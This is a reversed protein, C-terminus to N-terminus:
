NVRIFGTKFNTIMFNYKAAMKNSLDVIATVSTGASSSSGNEVTIDGLRVKAFPSSAATTISANALNEFYISAIKYAILKNLFEPKVQRPTLYYNVKLIESSELPTVKIYFENIDLDFIEVDVKETYPYIPTAQKFATIDLISMAGGFNADFYWAKPLEYYRDDQLKYVQVGFKFQCIDMKIALKAQDFLFEVDASPLATASIKCEIRILDIIKQISSQVPILASETSGDYWAIKYYKSYDGDSDEYELNISNTTDILTYTGVESDSRYIRAFEYGDDNAPLLIVVSLNIM